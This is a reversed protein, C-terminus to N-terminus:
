DLKSGKESPLLEMTGKSSLSFWYYHQSLKGANLILFGGITVQLKLGEM